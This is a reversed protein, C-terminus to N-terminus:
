CDKPKVLEKVTLRLFSSGLLRTSCPEQIIELQSQSVSQHVATTPHYVLLGESPNGPAQVM